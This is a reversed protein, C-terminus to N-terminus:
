AGSMKLLRLTEATPAAGIGPTEPLRIMGNELVIGGEIREEAHEYCSDLDYFQVAESACAFHASAALGLRSELMCGVMCRRGSAEAIAAIQLAHHIGGSKSLKINFYPVAEEAVLRLAEPPSFLSEDAM